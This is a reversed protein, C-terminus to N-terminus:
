CASSRLRALLFRCRAGRVAQAACGLVDVQIFGDILEGIFAFMLSTPMSFILIVAHRLKRPLCKLKHWMELSNELLRDSLKKRGTTLRGLSKTYGTVATHVAGMPALNAM